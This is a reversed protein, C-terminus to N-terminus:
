GRRSRSLLVESIGGPLQRAALKTLNSAGHVRNAGKQRHSCFPDRLDLQRLRAAVPPRPPRKCATTCFSRMEPSQLSRRTVHRPRRWAAAPRTVGYGNKVVTGIIFDPYTTGASRDDGPLASVRPKRGLPARDRPWCQRAISRPGRGKPSPGGLANKLENQVQLHHRRPWTPGLAASAIWRM